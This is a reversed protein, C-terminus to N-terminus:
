RTSCSTRISRAPSRRWARRAGAAAGARRAEERQAHQELDEASHRRRVAHDAYIAAWALRPASPERRICPSCQDGFGGLTQRLFEAFLIGAPLRLHFATRRHNRSEKFFRYINLDFFPSFRWIEEPDPALRAAPRGARRRRGAAAHDPARRRPNFMAPLSILVGPSCAPSTAAWSAPWCAAKWASTPRRSLETSVVRIAVSAGFVVASGCALAGAAPQPHPRGAHLMAKFSNSRALMSAISAMVGLKVLLTVLYRELM